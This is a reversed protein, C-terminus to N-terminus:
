RGDGGKDYGYNSYNRFLRQTETDTFLETFSDAIKRRFKKNRFTSKDSMYIGKEEDGDSIFYVNDGMDDGFPLSKPCADFFNLAADFDKMDGWKWFTMEPIIWDPRQDEIGGGGFVYFLERYDDPLPIPSNKVILEWQGDIEQDWNPNWTAERGSWARCEEDKFNNFLAYIHEILSMVVNM